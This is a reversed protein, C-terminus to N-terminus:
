VRFCGRSSCMKNATFLRPRRLTKRCAISKSAMPEPAIIWLERLGRQAYVRRKNDRDLRATKPSLIEAVFDPSGEIGADTFVAYHEKAVFVIDPQFVNYNDLYVDFPADYIKGIPHEDLYDLLIKELNRSIDQHYRNPAPAMYLCGEILQYRPGTEPLIKYNEVTLLVPTSVTTMISLSYRLEASCLLEAPEGAAFPSAL